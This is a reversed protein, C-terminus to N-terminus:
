FQLSYFIDTRLIASLRKDYLSFDLIICKSKEKNDFKLWVENAFTNKIEEERQAAVEALVMFAHHAKNTNLAM